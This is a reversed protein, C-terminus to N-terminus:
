KSEEEELYRKLAAYGISFQSAVYGMGRGQSLLTYIEERNKQFKLISRLRKEANGADRGSRFIEDLEYGPREPKPKPFHVTHYVGHLLEATSYSPIFDHRSEKRRIQVITHGASM